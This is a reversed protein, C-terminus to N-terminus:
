RAGATTSSDYVTRSVRGVKMGTVIEYHITGLAGAWDQATPEGHDGPGFLVATEGEAVPHDGCDVVLQDMCVRGVVPYKKGPQYGYPKM